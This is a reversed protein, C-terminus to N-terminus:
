KVIVKGDKLSVTYETTTNPKVEVVTEGRDFSNDLVIKVKGEPFEIGDAPGEGYGSPGVYLTPGPPDVSVTVKGRERLDERLQSRLEFTSVKALHIQRTMPAHDPGDFTVEIFSKRPFNKVYPTGGSMEGDIEVSLGTPKADLIGEVYNRRPSDERHLITEIVSEKGPKLRIFGAYGFRGEKIIEVHHEFDAALGKVTTPTTGRMVGDVFVKSDRPETVISLDATEGVEFPRMQLPEPDMGPAGQVKKVAPAFGEKYAIIENRRGDVLALNGGNLEQLHGNVVWKVDPESASFAVDVTPLPPVNVAALADPDINTREAEAILESDKTANAVFIIAIIALVGVFGLGLKLAKGSSNPQWEEDVQLPDSPELSSGVNPSPSSAAATRPASPNKGTSPRAGPPPGRRAASPPAAGHPGSAAPGSSANPKALEPTSAAAPESSAAAAVAPERERAPESTKSTSLSVASLSPTPLSTIIKAPSPESPEVEVASKEGSDADDAHEDDAPGPENAEATTEAAMDEDIVVTAQHAVPVEQSVAALADDLEAELADSAESADPLGEKKSVKSDERIKAEVDVVQTKDDFAFDDESEQHSEPEAVLNKLYRSLHVPSTSAGNAVLWDELALQMEEATQFRDDPDRELAKFVIKELDTPYGSRVDRPAAIDGEVVERMTDFDSEGRFLRRMTTSEYLVIGLAFIDSRHDLQEAGRVQEPSMYAIKGKIEGARTMGIRDEAKAIGFDCVKVHGETSVLINQPSMDRHVIRMPEDNSDKRTHAFHLGAAANAVVNVALNIPIENNDNYGKELITRFDYGDVFEMAIYLYEGVQGLDYVQVINPHNLSAAIRAEDLFMNRMSEDSALNPFIRKIALEKEFGGLEASQRALFVEAMGGQAIKEVLQYKGFDEAM